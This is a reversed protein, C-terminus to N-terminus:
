PPPPAAGPGADWPPRNWRTRLIEAFGAPTLVRVGPDAAELIDRDGSVLLDAQAAALAFLHDDNPDRCVPRM